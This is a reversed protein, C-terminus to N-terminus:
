WTIELKNDKRDVDAMRGSPDIEVVRLNVLNDDVELTYNPHTWKWPEHVTRKLSPNEAPKSGFCLYQPVYVLQCSGDKFTLMLDIPMPMQGTNKLRIKMKSGEQWLSDIGYNIKKTSNVFYQRYWDLQMSSVDEAVRIIDEAGLHKFSYKKYLELFMKDRNAAGIIYGLQEYFVAGKSYAGETYGYKTNFHDAHTTLPEEFESRALKLYSGYAEALPNETSDSNMRAIVKHESYTAFGEDIWADNSEDNAMNM